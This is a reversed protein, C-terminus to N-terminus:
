RPETLELAVQAPKLRTLTEADRFRTAIRGLRHWLLEVETPPITASPDLAM